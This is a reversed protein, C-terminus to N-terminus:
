VLERGVEGGAHGLAVSGLSGDVLLKRQGFGAGFGVPVVLFNSYSM